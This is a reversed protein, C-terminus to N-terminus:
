QDKLALGKYDKLEKLV